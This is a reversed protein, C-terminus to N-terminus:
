RTVFPTFGERKLRTVTGEATPRDAFPGVTVRFRSRAPGNTDVTGTHGKAKLQAVMADANERSGFAGVQVLWAGAAVAKPTADPPTPPPTSPKPTAAPAAPTTM